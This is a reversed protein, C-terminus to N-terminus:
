KKKKRSVGRKGKKPKPFMNVMLGYAPSVYSPKGAITKEWTFTPYKLALELQKEDMIINDQALLCKLEFIEDETKLEYEKNIQGEMFIDREPKRM